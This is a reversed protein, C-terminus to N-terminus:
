FLNTTLVSTLLQIQVKTQRARLSPGGWQRGGESLCAMLRKGVEDESLNVRSGCACECTLVLDPSTKWGCIPRSITDFFQWFSTRETCTSLSYYVEPWNQVQVLYFLSIPRNPLLGPHYTYFKSQIERDPIDHFRKLRKTKGLHEQKIWGNPRTTRLRWLIHPDFM